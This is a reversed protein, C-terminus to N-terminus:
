LEKAFKQTFKGRARSLSEVSYTDYIVHYRFAGKLQYNAVKLHVM